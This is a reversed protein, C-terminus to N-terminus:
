IMEIGHIPAFETRPSKRLVCIHFSVSIRMCAFSRVFALKRTAASSEDLFTAQGAMFVSMITLEEIQNIFNCLKELLRM